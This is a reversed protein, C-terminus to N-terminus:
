KKGKPEPPKTKLIARWKECVLEGVPRPVVPLPLQKPQQNM